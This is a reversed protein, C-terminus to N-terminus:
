VQSYITDIEINNIILDFTFKNATIADEESITTNWTFPYTIVVDFSFVNFSDSVYIDSIDKVAKCAIINIGYDKVLNFVRGKVDKILYTILQDSIYYGSDIWKYKINFTTNNSPKNGIWEVSTHDTSLKYDTNKVYSGIETIDIAPVYKINYSNIGSKYTINESTDIVVDTAAVTYRIVCSNINCFNANHNIDTTCCDDISRYYLEGDNIFKINITPLELKNLPVSGLTKKIPFSHGDIIVSSPISSVLLKKVDTDVM